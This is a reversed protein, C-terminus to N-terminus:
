PIQKSFDAQNRKCMMTRPTSNELRCSRRFSVTRHSFSFSSILSKLSKPSGPWCHRICRISRCVNKCHGALAVVMRAVRKSSNGVSRSTRGRSSLHLSSEQVQRGIFPVSQRHIEESGRAFKSPALHLCNGRGRASKLDVDKISSVIAEM